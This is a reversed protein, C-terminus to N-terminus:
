NRFWRDVAVTMSNQSQHITIYTMKPTVPLLKETTQPHTTETVRCPKKLYCLTALSLSLSQKLVTHTHAGICKNLIPLISLFM